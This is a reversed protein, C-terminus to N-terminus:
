ARAADRLKKWKREHRLLMACFRWTDRLPNIKSRETGYITRVPVSGIRVGMEGCDLLLESEAAFGKCSPAIAAWLECKYLRFGNQTDPVVQRIRRSILRSMFQNVWRRVRPMGGANDMRNGVLVPIATNLYAKIFAPLDAPDHQGDADMTIAFDFGSKLAYDLGSQLAAGKGRNAAHRIVHAGAREAEDATGDRSGDDVVVVHPCHALVGTVVAGIRGAENYGPVVVCGKEAGRM